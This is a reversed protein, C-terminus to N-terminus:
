EKLRWVNGATDFDVHQLIVAHLQTESFVTSEVIDIDDKDVVVFLSEHLEYEDLKYQIDVTCTFYAKNCYQGSQLESLTARLIHINNKTDDDIQLIEGETTVLVRVLTAQEFCHGFYQKAENTSFLQGSITLLREM